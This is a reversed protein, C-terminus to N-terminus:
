QESDEFDKKAREFEIEQAEQEQKKYKLQDIIAEFERTIATDVDIFGLFQVPNQSEAAGIYQQDKINPWIEVEKKDTNYFVGYREDAANWQEETIADQLMSEARSVSLKEIIEEFNKM